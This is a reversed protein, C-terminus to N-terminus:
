PAGGRRARRPRQRRGDDRPRRTGRRPPRGAGGAMGRAPRGGHRVRAGLRPVRQTAARAGAPAEDGAGRRRTRQRRGGALWRGRRHETAQRVGDRGDVAVWPWAADGTRERGWPRGFAVFPIGEGALWAVRPDAFDTATLVIADVESGDRLRRYHAIEDDVD